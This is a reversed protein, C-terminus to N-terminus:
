VKFIVYARLIHQCECQVVKGKDIDTANFTYLLMSKYKSTGKSRSAYTSRKVHLLSTHFIYSLFVWCYHM